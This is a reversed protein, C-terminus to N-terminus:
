RAKDRHKRILFGVYLAGNMVMVSALGVLAIFRVPYHDYLLLKLLMVFITGNTFGYALKKTM